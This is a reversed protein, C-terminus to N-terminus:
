MFQEQSQGSQAMLIQPMETGFSRSSLNYQMFPEKGKVETEEMEAPFEQQKQENPSMTREGSDAAPANRSMNDEQRNDPLGGSQQLLKEQSDRDGSMDPIENQGVDTEWQQGTHEPGQEPPATLDVSREDSKEPVAGDAIERKASSEPAQVSIEDYNPLEANKEQEGTIDSPVALEEASTETVTVTDNNDPMESRQESDPESQYEVATDEETTRAANDNGAGSVESIDPIIEPKESAETEATGCVYQGGGMNKKRAEQREEETVTFTRIPADVRETIARGISESRDESDSTIGVVADNDYPARSDEYLRDLTEAVADEISMGRIDARLEEALESDNQTVPEVAIVRGLRNVSMELSSGGADVSVYAGVSVSAYNYAAGGSIVLVLAAAALGRVWKQKFVPMPTVKANIEIEEGVAGPRRVKIFTGNEALVAAESGKRELIVAKM